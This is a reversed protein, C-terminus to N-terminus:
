RFQGIQFRTRAGSNLKFTISTSTAKAILWPYTSNNSAIITGGTVTLGGNGYSGCFFMDGIQSTMTKSSESGDGTM